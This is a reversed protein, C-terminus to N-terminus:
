LRPEGGRSTHWLALIEVAKSEPRTLYYLYYRVRGMTVRRVGEHERHVVPEGSGPMTTVLRFARELDEAFARPAKPRNALWWEAATRIQEEACEGVELRYTM